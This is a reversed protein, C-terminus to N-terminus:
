TKVRTQWETWPPLPTQRLAHQSVVGPLLGVVGPLLGSSNRVTRM